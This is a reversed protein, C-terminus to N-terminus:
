IWVHLLLSPNGAKPRAATKAVIKPEIWFISESKQGGKMGSSKPTRELFMKGRSPSNVKYFGFNWSHGPEVFSNIPEYFEDPDSYNLMFNLRGETM